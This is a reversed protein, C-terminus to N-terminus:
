IWWGRAGYMYRLRNRERAEIFERERHYSEYDVTVAKRWLRIAGTGIKMLVHKVTKM